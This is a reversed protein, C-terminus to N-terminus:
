SPPLGDCRGPTLMYGLEKVMMGRVDAKRQDLKNMDYAHGYYDKIDSKSISFPPGSMQKQDYKFVILLQKIAPCITLM